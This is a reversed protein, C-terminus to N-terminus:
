RRRKGHKNLVSTVNITKSAKRKQNVKPNKKNKDKAPIPKLDGEIIWSDFIDTRIRVPYNKTKFESFYESTRVREKGTPDYEGIVNGAFAYRLNWDDYSRIYRARIIFTYQWGPPVPPSSNLNVTQATDDTVTSGKEYKFGGDVSTGIGAIKFELGLSINGAKTITSSETHNTSVTGGNYTMNTNGRNRYTVDAIGPIRIEDTTVPPAADKGNGYTHVSVRSKDSESQIPTSNGFLISNGVRIAKTPRRPATGALFTFRNLRDEQNYIVNVKDKNPLNQNMDWLLDDNIIKSDGAGSLGEKSSLQRTRAYDFDIRSDRKKRVVRRTKKPKPAKKKKKKKKKKETTKNESDISEITDESSIINDEKECSLVSLSAIAIAIFVQKM